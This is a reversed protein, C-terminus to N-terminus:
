FFEEILLGKLSTYGETKIRKKSFIIKNVQFGILKGRCLDNLDIKLRNSQIM